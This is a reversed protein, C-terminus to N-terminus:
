GSTTDNRVADPRTILLLRGDQLVAISPEDLDEGDARELVSWLRWHEGGDDSRHIVGCLAGIPNQEIDQGRSAYCPFLLAGSAPLVVPETYARQYYPFPCNFYIPSSFSVGGDDSYM